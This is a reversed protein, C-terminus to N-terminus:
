SLRDKETLTLTHGEIEVSTGVAVDSKPASDYRLVVDITNRNSSADFSEVTVGSLAVIQRLQAEVSSSIAESDIDPYIAFVYHWRQSGDSNVKPKPKNNAMAVMAFLAIGIIAIPWM